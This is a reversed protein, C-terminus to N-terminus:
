NKVLIVFYKYTFYTNKEDSYGAMVLVTDGVMRRYFSLITNAQRYKDTYSSHNILATPAYTPEKYYYGYRNSVAQWDILVPTTEDTDVFLREFTQTQLTDIFAYYTSDNIKRSVLGICGMNFTKSTYQAPENPVECACLLLCFLLSKM